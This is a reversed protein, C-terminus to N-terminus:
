LAVDLVGSLWPSYDGGEASDLGKRLKRVSIWRVDAVEDPDPAIALGVPARGVLVHDYEWEVRGTMPDEARYVYVGVEALEFGCRGGDGADGVDSLTGVGLEESLRRWAARAVPEGPSPHGCCANAWRLPFRTKGAARRQLLTQGNDDLLVVSFARHLLGPSSHAEAVTASGVSAGEPSVLEVLHREREATV